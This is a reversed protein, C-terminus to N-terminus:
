FFLLVCIISWQIDEQKEMLFAQEWSKIALKKAIIISDTMMWCFHISEALFVFGSFVTDTKQRYITKCTREYCYEGQKTKEPNTNALCGGSNTAPLSQRFKHENHYYGKKDATRCAKAGSFVPQVTQGITHFARPRKKACLRRRIIAGNM